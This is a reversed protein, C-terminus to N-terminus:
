ICLLFASDLMKRDMDNMEIRASYTGGNAGATDFVAELITAGLVRDAEAQTLDFRIHGAAGSREGPIRAM